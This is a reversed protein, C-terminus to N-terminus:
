GSRKKNKLINSLWENSDEQEEKLSEIKVQEKCYPCFQWNVQLVRGCSCEITNIEATCYPCYSWSENLPKGCKMCLIETSDNRLNM